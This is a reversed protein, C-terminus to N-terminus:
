RPEPAPPESEEPQWYLYLLVIVGVTIAVDALNFAPWLPPDIFDTVADARIRDVLNGIAGGGLLGAAVWVGPKAATRALWVGIALLALATVAIVAGRGDSFLGFAVGRNRVNTLQFGLAVDVSDGRIIASDAIAKSAQDLAVVTAALALARAWGRAAPTV